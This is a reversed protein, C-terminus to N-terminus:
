QRGVLGNRGPDQCYAPKQNVTTNDPVNRICGDVLKRLEDMEWGNVFDAHMSGVPSRMGPGDGAVAINGVRTSPLVFTVSMTIKPLPQWGSKCRGDAPDVVREPENAADGVLDKNWCQPFAVHVLLKKSKCTRPLRDSTAGSGCGWEVDGPGDGDRAVMEFDAPFSAISRQKQIKGADYYITNDGRVKGTYVRLADGNRYVEPHWYASSNAARRCSTDRGRLSDSTDGNAVGAAGYFVHPHGHSPEYIPDATSHGVVDCTSGFNAGNKAFATAVVGLVLGCALVSLVLSKRV